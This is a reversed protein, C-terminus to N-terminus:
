CAIVGEARPAPSLLRAALHAAAVTSIPLTILFGIGLVAAGIVNVTLLALQARIVGATSGRTSTASHAYGARVTEGQEVLVFPFLAYRGAFWVGPVVLLALGLVTLTVYLILGLVLRPGAGFPRMSSRFTPEIGRVAQMAGRILSAAIEGLLALFAAHMSLNFILGLDNGLAVTVELLAWVSLLLLSSGVFFQPYARVARVGIAIRGAVRIEGAKGGELSASSRNM